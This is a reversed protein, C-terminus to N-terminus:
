RQGENALAERDDQTMPPVGDADSYIKGEVSPPWPWPARSGERMHQRIVEKHFMTDFFEEWSGAQRYTLTVWTSPEGAQALALLQATMEHHFTVSGDERRRWISFFASARGVIEHLVKVAKAEASDRAYVPPPAVPRKKARKKM